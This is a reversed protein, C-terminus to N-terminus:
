AKKSLNNLDAQLTRWELPSINEGLRSLNSIWDSIASDTTSPVKGLVEGEQSFMQPSKRLSQAAEVAEKIPATPIVPPDGMKKALDFFNDYLIKSNHRLRQNFNSRAAQTLDLGLQSLTSTP